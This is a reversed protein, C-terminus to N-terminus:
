LNDLEAEKKQQASTKGQTSAGAGGHTSAGSGTSETQGQAAKAPAAQEAGAGDSAKLENGSIVDYYKEALLGKLPEPVPYAEVNQASATEAYLISGAPVDRAKGRVFFGGALGVPGLAIAGVLSTGAAAAYSAEFKEAKKSADGTTLPLTQSGLTRLERVSLTIKSPRGFSRPKRVSTVVAVAPAGAPVVLKGDVSINHSLRLLVKDGKKTVSPKLTEMLQLRAVTGAPLTVPESTVPDSVVMGLVREVRMALPRDAMAAGELHTEVAPVRENLPKSANNLIELGWEAVSMKYLLSPQGNAGKEVFDIHASQREALTGQLKTGYLDREVEDLREVLSGTRAQGYLVEELVQIQQEGETNLEAVAATCMLACFILASLIRKM